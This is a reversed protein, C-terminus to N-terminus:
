RPYLTDPRKEFAVEQLERPMQRIDVIMGNVSLMWVLPNDALKSAPSWNPDLQHMNLLDRVLKSKGQSASQGKELPSPRKKCLVATARRIVQAYEEDLNERSFQDTLEVIAQYRERMAKPANESQTKRAM